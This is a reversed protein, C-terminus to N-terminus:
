RDGAQLFPMQMIRFDKIVISDLQVDAFARTPKGNSPLFRIDIVKIEM